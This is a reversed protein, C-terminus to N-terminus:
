RFKEKGSGLSRIQSPTSPTHTQPPVIELAKKEGVDADAWGKDGKLVSGVAGRAGLKGDSEGNETELKEKM